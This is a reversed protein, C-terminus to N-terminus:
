TNNEGLKLLDHLEIQNNYRYKDNQTQIKEKTESSLHNRLYYYLQNTLPYHHTALGKVYDNLKRMIDHDYEINNLVLLTASINYLQQDVRNYDYQLEIDTKKLNFYGLEKLAEIQENMPVNKLAKYDIDALFRKIENDTKFDDCVELVMNWFVGEMGYYSYSKKLWPILVDNRFHVGDELSFLQSLIKPLISYFNSFLTLDSKLYQFFSDRLVLHYGVYSWFDKKDSADVFSLRNIQNNINKWIEQLEEVPINSTSLAEIYQQYTIPLRENKDRFSKFIAESWYSIGGSIQLDFVNDKVFNWFCEVTSSDITMIGKAHACNNRTHRWKKFEDAFVQHNKLKIIREDVLEEKNGKNDKPPPSMLIIDSIGEEWSNYDEVKKIFHNWKKIPVNEPKEGFNLVKFRIVSEFALYSMIFAARYAGIKYCCVAEKFLELSDPDFPHTQEVWKEIKLVM